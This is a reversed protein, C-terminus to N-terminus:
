IAFILKILLNILKIVTDIRLIRREREKRVIRYSIEIYQPEVTINDVNPFISPSIGGSEWSHHERNKVLLTVTNNKPLHRNVTKIVLFVHRGM